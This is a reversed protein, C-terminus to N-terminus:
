ENNASGASQPGSTAASGDRDAHSLASQIGGSAALTAPSRDTNRDLESDSSSLDDNSVVRGSTTDPASILRVSPALLVPWTQQTAHDRCQGVRGDVVLERVGLTFLSTLDDNHDSCRCQDITYTSHGAPRSLYLTVPDGERIAEGCAQCMPDGNAPSEVRLHSLVQQLDTDTSQLGVTYHSLM